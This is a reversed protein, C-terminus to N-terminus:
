EQAPVFRVFRPKHNEMLMLFNNLDRTYIGTQRTESHKLYITNDTYVVMPVGTIADTGLYLIKYITNKYHRWHEGPSPMIFPHM